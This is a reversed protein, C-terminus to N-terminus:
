HVRLTFFSKLFPLSGKRPVWPKPQQGRKPGDGVIEAVECPRKISFLGLELMSLFTSISVFHTQFRGFSCRLLVLHGNTRTMENLFRRSPGIMENSWKEKHWVTADQGNNHACILLDWGSSLEIRTFHADLIEGGYIGRGSSEREGM